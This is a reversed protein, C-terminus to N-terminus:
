LLGCLSFFHSKKRLIAIIYKIAFIQGNQNLFTRLSRNSLLNRDLVFHILGQQFGRICFSGIRACYSTNKNM